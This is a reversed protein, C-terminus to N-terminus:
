KSKLVSEKTDKNNSSLPSLMTSRIMSKKSNNIVIRKSADM